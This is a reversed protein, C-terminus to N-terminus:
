GELATLRTEMADIKALAEQLAATLLPVLKSQDIGQYDPVSRTGMVAETTVNGDDDLVAPTVEYEEDMMADKTGTIAEPVVTAVEHALFGDVLTNTDDAIFNFRSPNLQNVRASAGTLDVVNEKLRYDSSTNYSTSSASTTISGKEGGGNTHEFSIARFSAGGEGLLNLAGNVNGTGFTTIRGNSNIRLRETSGDVRFRISSNATANDRDAVLFLHGDDTFIAGDINGSSDAFEIIGAGSGSAGAIKLKHHDSENTISSTGIGVNGSSDIRMREVSGTKFHMYDNPHYYAILGQANGGTTDDAFEIGGWKNTGSLVQIGAHETGDGVSLRTESTTFIYGSSSNGIGVNGSSDIRLRESGNSNFTFNGVNNTTFALESNNYEWEIDAHYTGDNGLKLTGTQGGIRVVGSSDIRFRESGATEMKIFGDPDVEIDENGDHTQLQVPQSTSAGKVVFAGANTAISGVTTGDKHFTVINGDSTLRNFMGSTDGDRAASVWGAGGVAVGTGSADNAPNTDTTGVLVNGSSDIRMREAKASTNRFVLNDSSDGYIDASVNLSSDTWAFPVGENMFIKGNPDIRMRESSGNANTFTFTGTSSTNRFEVNGNTAPAITIPVNADSGSGIHLISLPDDTGIGVNGSSDITLDRTSTDPSLVFDTGVYGMYYNQTTNNLKLWVDTGDTHSFEAPVSNTTSITLPRSPSSTGIGLAEASADWFFKATTGTDEYFSIDGNDEILMRDRNRVDFKISGATNNTDDAFIRFQANSSGVGLGNVYGSTGNNGRVLIAEDPFVGTATGFTAEGDVTLGDSTITSEVNLAGTMTDGTVRVFGTGTDFATKLEDFTIAKTEDATIDVVVFEDANALDAGTINTLQTIKKDAL